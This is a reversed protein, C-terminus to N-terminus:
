SDEKALTHSIVCEAALPIGPLWAPERTLEEIVMAKAAEADNEAVVIGLDDHTSLVFKLQGAGRDDIRLMAQSLVVRAQAQTVEAVLASGYLKKFQKPRSEIRWHANDPDPNGNDDFPIFWDLTDYVLPLGNPLWIKRDQVRLPGWNYPDGSYLRELVRGAEKWYRVVNTHTDRYTDRAREAEDLELFIPPGYAGSRATRQISFSGAGYGCSLELQKGFGRHTEMTKDVPFGYFKTALESYLDRKQRFAEVIEWEGANHNLIRCEIQSLDPRLCVFGRRARATERLRNLRGDSRRSRPLNQWNVKDGGGWRTTRTPCYSLYVCANGRTAMYGLREARTQNINSRSDLRATALTAVWDDPDEELAQLFEDTKAFAPILKQPDTKSRKYEIEVGAQELLAQFKKDSRLDALTVGGAELLKLNEQHKIAEEKWIEGLLQIDLELTPETFMRITRDIIRLEDPPFKCNVLFYHFVKQMLESDHICGEIIQNQEATPIQKWLKGDFLHYPVNKPTLGLYTTVADLSFRHHKGWMGRAMAMPDIWFKPYVGYHHSLILGDFQAHYAMAGHEHWPFTACWEKFQEPGLWVPREDYWSVACGHIHFRPDRVYEETTQKKLTFGNKSDFFTEFDLCLIKM